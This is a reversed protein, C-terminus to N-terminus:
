SFPTELLSTMKRLTGDRMARDILLPLWRSPISNRSRWGRIVPLTPRDYGHSAILDQIDQDSGVSAMLDRYRYRPYIRDQMPPKQIQAPMTAEQIEVL